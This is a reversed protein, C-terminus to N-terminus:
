EASDKEEKGCDWGAVYREEVEEERVEVPVEKKVTRTGWIIKCSPPAEHCAYLRVRLDMDGDFNEFRVKYEWWDLGKNYKRNWIAAQFARRIEKVEAQGSAQFSLYVEKTDPTAEIGYYLRIGIKELTPLLRRIIELDRKGTYM